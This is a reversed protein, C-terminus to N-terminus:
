GLRQPKVLARRVHRLPPHAANRCGSCSTLCTRVCASSAGHAAASTTARSFTVHGRLAATVAAWRAASAGSSNGYGRGTTNVATLLVARLM